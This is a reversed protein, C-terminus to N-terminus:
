DDQHLLRVPRVGGSGEPGATDQGVSRDRLGFSPGPRVVPGLTSNGDEDGRGPSDLPLPLQDRPAGDGDPGGM